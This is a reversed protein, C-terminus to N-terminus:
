VCNITVIKQVISMYLLCSNLELRLYFCMKTFNINKTKYGECYPLLVYFKLFIKLNENINEM